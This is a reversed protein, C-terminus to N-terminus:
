ATVMTEAGIRVRWVGGALAAIGAALKPMM